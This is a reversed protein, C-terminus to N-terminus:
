RWTCVSSTVYWVYMCVYMCESCVYMFKPSRPEVFEDVAEGTGGPLAVRLYMSVYMCVYVSNNNVYMCMYMCVCMCVYM